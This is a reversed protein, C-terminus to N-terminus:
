QVGLASKVCIPRAIRGPSLVTARDVGVSISVAVRCAPDTALVDAGITVAVASRCSRNAVLAYARVSVAVPVRRACDASILNVGVCSRRANRCPGDAPPAHVAQSVAKSRGSAILEVEPIDATIVDDLVTGRQPYSSARVVKRAAKLYVADM